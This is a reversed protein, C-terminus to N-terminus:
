VRFELNGKKKRRKENENLKKTGMISVFGLNERGPDFLALFRSCLLM